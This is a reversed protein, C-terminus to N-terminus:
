ANRGDSKRKILRILLISAACIALVASICLIVTLISLGKKPQDNIMDAFSVAPAILMFITCTLCIKYGPKNM